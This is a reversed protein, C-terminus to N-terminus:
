GEGVAAELAPARDPMTEGPQWWFDQGNERRARQRMRRLYGPSFHEQMQHFFLHDTAAKTYWLNAFPIHSKALRVAKGGAQDVEGANADDKLKFLAEIDGAIPGGLAALPSSGGKSTDSFLFDGYLGVSGGKLFSAMWFKPTTMDQPDKGGAIENLQMAMAGLITTSAMISAIYAAKGAGTNQAMGRKWHRTIMTIPFGKFQWFSRAIEGGWTGREFVGYMMARERAAPEIIAMQGEDLVIGMYTTAARDKLQDVTMGQAAAMDALQADPINRIGEATLMTDGAGRWDEVEAMRWISWDADTVGQDRLRKADAPDMDALSNYKRSMDGLADMYTSSFARQMAMTMANMGSMQMVRAAAGQSVSAIRGSVTTSTGLGDAGWRNLAGIMQNVGLGARQALKRHEANLPNLFRIENAFTQLVPTKNIHATLGIMGHDTLATIVSSGLRAAVNLARYTDFGNAIAASAPPEHLSAVETFLRDMKKRRAAVKEANAVNAETDRMQAKDAFTRYALDSNPGFTEILAIDRSIGDVHGIMLDLMTKGGYAQQAAIYAEADKYHIQRAEKGHNARMGSGKFQGPETKSAGNTIISMSAHTLFERVRADDMLTGDPNVYQNRDVWQMHDDIWKEKNRAVVAAAHDRPLNWDARYGIDGGAANYRQRLSETTERWVKAAARASADGTNVGFIERVTALNAQPNNFLGLLRGGLTDVLDTMRGVAEQRIARAQSEVSVVGSRGDAQFALLRDLGELQTPATALYSEVRQAALVQLAVRDRKKTAEAILKAAAIDAMRARRQEPTMELAATRDAAVEREAQRLQGEVASLEDPTMERGVAANVEGVCEPRM